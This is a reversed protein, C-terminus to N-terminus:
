KNGVETLVVQMERFQGSNDRLQVGVQKLATEVRNLDMGDEFTKGLDGKISDIFDEIEKPTKRENLAFKLISDHLGGLLGDDNPLKDFLRFTKYSSGYYKLGGDREENYSNITNIEDFLYNRLVTNIQTIDFLSVSKGLENMLEITSESSRDAARLFPLLPTSGSSASSRLVSELDIAFKDDAKLDGVPIGDSESTIGQIYGIRLDIGTRKGDKFL